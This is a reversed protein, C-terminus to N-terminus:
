KNIFFNIGAVGMSYLILEYKKYKRKHEEEILKLPDKFLNYLTQCIDKKTILLEIFGADYCM